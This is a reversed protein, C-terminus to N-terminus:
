IALSVETVHVRVSPYMSIVGHHLIGIYKGEIEVVTGGMVDYEVEDGIKFGAVLELELEDQRKEVAQRISKCDELSVYRIQGNISCAAKSEQM